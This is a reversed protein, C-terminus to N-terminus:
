ANTHSTRFEVRFQLYRDTVSLATGQALTSWSPTGAYPSFATASTRYEVVRPNTDDVDIAGGPASSLAPELARFAVSNLEPSGTSGMDYVPSLIRGGTATPYTTLDVVLADNPDEIIDGPTGDTYSNLGLPGENEWAPQLNGAAANPSPSLFRLQSWLSGYYIGGLGFAGIRGGDIGGSMFSTYDAPTTTPDLRFDSGATRFGPDTTDTDIGNSETNGSYANYDETMAGNLNSFTTVTNAYNNYCVPSNINTQFNEYFGELNYASNNLLLCAANSVMAAVALGTPSGNQSYFVCHVAGGTPNGASNNFGLASAGSEMNRFHIKHWLTTDQSMRIYCAVGTGVYPASAEQFDFTVVGDYFNDPMWVVNNYSANNFDYTPSLYTGPRVLVIHPATGALIAAAAGSITGKALARTSGDNADSGATGDLYIVGM